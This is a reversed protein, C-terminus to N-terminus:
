EWILELCVIADPAGATVFKGKIDVNGTSTKGFKGSAIVYYASDGIAVAEAAQVYVRGYRMVPACDGKAYEAAVPGCLCSCGYYTAIVVGASADSSAAVKVVNGNADFKVVQGPSVGNTEAVMCSDIQRLAFQQALMGSVGIAMTGGYTLQAM